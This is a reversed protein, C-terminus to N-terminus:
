WEKIIYRIIYLIPRIDCKRGCFLSVLLKYMEKMDCDEPEEDFKEKTNQWAFFLCEHLM